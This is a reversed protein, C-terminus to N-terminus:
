SSALLSVTGTLDKNWIQMPAGLAMVKPANHPLRCLRQRAFWVPEQRYPPWQDMDPYLYLM